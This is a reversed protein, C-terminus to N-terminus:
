PNINCVKVYQKREICQDSVGNGFEKLIMEPIDSKEFCYKDWTGAPFVFGDERLVDTKAYSFGCVDQNRKCDVLKPEKNITFYGEYCKLANGIFDACILWLFTM